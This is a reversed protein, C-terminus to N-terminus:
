EVDYHEDGNQDGVEESEVGECVCRRKRGRGSWTEEFFLAALLLM